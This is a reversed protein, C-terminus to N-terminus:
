FQDEKERHTGLMKKEPVQPGWYILQLILYSHENNKWFIVSHSM